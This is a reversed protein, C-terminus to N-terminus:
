MPIFVNVRVGNSKGDEILDTIKYNIRKGELKLYLEIMEDIIKLGRKIKGKSQAMSAKRGVGDDTLEIELHNITRFLKISLHGRTKKPLIGHKVANEAFTQIIMRPILMNMNIDKAVDIEYILRDKFRFKELELYNEVFELEEELTRSIKNSDELTLRVLKSFKNFYTYATDKDEKFIVSSISNLANFTFHPDMQSKIAKLQLEHMQNELEYKKKLRVRQLRAILIVFGLILLYLLAILFFRYQYYTNAKIQLIVNIGGSEVSLTNGPIGAGKVSQVKVKDINFPFGIQLVEELKDNLMLLINETRSILAYSIGFPLNDNQLRVPTFSGDGLDKRRILKLKDNMSYLFRRDVLLFDPHDPTIGKLSLDICNTFEIPHSKLLNGELDYLLLESCAKRYSKDSFFVLIIDKEKSRFPATKIQSGYGKFEVPEFLFELNHDFAMLWASSDRYPIEMHAPINGTSSCNMLIEPFKDNDLQTIHLGGINGSVPSAWSSDNVIDYCFIQRPQLSFGAKVNVLADNYGDGNMDSIYLHSNFDVKGDTRDITTIMKNRIVPKKGLEFPFYSLYLTDEVRSLALIDAIGDRNYDSIAIQGGEGNLEGKLNYQEINSGDWTRVKVAHNDRANVTSIIQEDTGNGDLDFYIMTGPKFDAPLSNIIDYSYRSFPPLIVVVIAFLVVAIIAPNLFFFLNKKSM